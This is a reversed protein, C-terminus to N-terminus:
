RTGAVTGGREGDAAPEGHERETRCAPQDHATAGALGLEVTVKSGDGRTVQVCAGTLAISRGERLLGWGTRQGPALVGRRRLVESPLESGLYPAYSSPELAPPGGEGLPHVGFPGIRRPTAPLGPALPLSSVVEFGAADAGLLEDLVVLGDGPLWWIVRRHRVGLGQRLYGDHEGVLVVGRDDQELRTRTVAPLGGARFAGWFDCQDAGDVELTAHARTARYRDRAPGAYAGAGPDVVIPVGDAWLVFSLAHAHAHPPLYRPALPGAAWVLFEQESRLAVYGSEALDTLSEAGVRRPPGAWADNLLPLAGDPATLADLWARMAARCLEVTACSARGARSLLGALDDLRELLQRQYATSREEHGGDPLIQADLERELIRMGVSEMSREGLWVGGAALAVANELLHNGGIDYEVSRRLYHLQHTLSALLRAELAGGWRGSALASCWALVRGSTPYPHWAVRDPLAFRALWDELVETWFTTADAEEENAAYAALASFGHLWFLFLLGDQPDTWFRPHRWAREVGVARFADITHPAPQPGSQPARDLFLGAGIHPNWDAPAKDSLGLDLFRPSLVRRPRAALQRLRLNALAEAYRRVTLM